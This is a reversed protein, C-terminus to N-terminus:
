RVIKIELAVRWEGRYSTLHASLSRGPRSIRFRDALHTITLDPEVEFWAALLTECAAAPGATLDCTGSIDRLNFTDRWRAAVIARSAGPPVSPGLHIGDGAFPTTRDHGGGCGACLVAVVLTARRLM